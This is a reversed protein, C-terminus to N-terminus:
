KSTIIAPIITLEFDGALMLLLSNNEVGNDEEAGDMM